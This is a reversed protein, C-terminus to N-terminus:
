SVVPDPMSKIQLQTILNNFIDSFRVDGSTLNWIDLVGITLTVIGLNSEINEITIGANLMYEKVALMKTMLQADNYNGVISLGEKIKALLEEDTM